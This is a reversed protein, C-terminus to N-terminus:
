SDVIAISIGHVRVFGNEVIQVSINKAPKIAVNIANDTNQEM